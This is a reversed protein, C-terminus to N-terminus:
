RAFHFFSASIGPASQLGHFYLSPRRHPMRICSPKAMQELKAFVPHADQGVAGKVRGPSLRCTVAAVQLGGGRGLWWCRHSTVCPYPDRNPWARHSPHKTTAPFHCDEALLWQITGCSWSRAAACCGVTGPAKLLMEQAPAVREWWAWHRHSSYRNVLGFLLMPPLYPLEEQGQTGRQWSEWPDLPSGPGLVRPCLLLGCSHNGEEKRRSHSSQGM